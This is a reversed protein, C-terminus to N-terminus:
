NQTEVWYKKKLMFFKRECIEQLTLTSDTFERNKDSFINAKTKSFYKQRIYFKLYLKKKKSCKISKM